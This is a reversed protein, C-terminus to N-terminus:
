WQGGAAHHPVHGEGYRDGQQAATSADRGEERSPHPQVLPPTWAAEM